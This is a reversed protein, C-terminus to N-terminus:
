DPRSSCRTLLDQQLAGSFSDLTTGLREVSGQWPMLLFTHVRSSCDHPPRAPSSRQVFRSNDQWPKLLLSHVRSVTMLLDQSLAGSFSYLTTGLCEVSSQWPKLLSSHVRSVTMLLDQSLAGSFSYFTTGLCEVSGRWPKLLPSHPRSSCCTLLDQSLARSSSDQTVTLTAALTKVRGTCLNSGDRSHPGLM